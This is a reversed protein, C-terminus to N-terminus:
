FTIRKLMKAMFFFYHYTNSIRIQICMAFLMSHKDLTKVSDDCLKVFPFIDFM